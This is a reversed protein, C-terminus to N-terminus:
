HYFYLFPDVTASFVNPVDIGINENKQFFRSWSDKFSQPVTPISKNLCTSVSAISGVGEQKTRSASSNTKTLTCSFIPSQIKTKPGDFGNRSELEVLSCGLVNERGLFPSM